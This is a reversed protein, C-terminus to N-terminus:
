WPRALTRSGRRAVAHSTDRPRCPLALRQAWSFMLIDENCEVGDYGRGRGCRVDGYITVRDM